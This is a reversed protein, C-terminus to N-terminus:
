ELIKDLKRALLMCAGWSHLNWAQGAPMKKNADFLAQTITLERDTLKMHHNETTVTGDPYEIYEM